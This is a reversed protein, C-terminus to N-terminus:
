SAHRTSGRLKQKLLGYMGGPVFLVFGILLIGLIIMYIEPWNAWLLEQLLVLFLVGCLPGPAEDSGGVIAMTVITFSVIPNFADTPQFIGTRMIFVAGVMAPIIASLTFAIVKLRAVPVGVTEAASEDERIARLGAGLRSGRVWFTLATALVALVLMGAFLQGLSPAGFIPRMSIFMRSDNILVLNKVLEALGFSLIVFYPGRVRLVPMGIVMAGFGVIIGALAVALLIPVEGWLLAFIYAGAGFFVVHGLSIYGTMGSLIVWSQSLAVFMLITFGIGLFYDSAFLSIIALLAMALFTIAVPMKSMM